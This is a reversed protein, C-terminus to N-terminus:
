PAGPSYYKAWLSPKGPLMVGPVSLDHKRALEIMRRPYEPWKGELRALGDREAPDLIPFLSESLCKEVAPRFEGPRCPGLPEPLAVGNKQALHAVELAYEPWKGLVSARRIEPITKVRRFEKVVEAPLSAFETIPTKGVPEPLGPHRDALRQLCAGYLLWYGSRVAAEQRTKLEFMEERTLRCSVPLDAKAEFKAPDARLVTRIYEDVQAALDPDSFPWLKAAPDHISEDWQRGAFVWESRRLAESQKWRAVLKVREDADAVLKLQDRSRAPLTERWVRERVRRVVELREDPKSVSLVERRDADPLRDLWAAYGDLVAFLRERVPHPQECLQQDLHRLQQQRAAPYSRFLDILKGRTDSSSEAPPATTLPSLSLEAGFLDPSDLDHVFGLDDVGLYIPLHEIVRLDALTPEDPDTRVVGGSPSLKARALYGGGLAIGAAVACLVVRLSFGIVSPTGLSSGTPSVSSPSPAATLRSLTRHTFNPSPEPRPLHDLLDFTRKFEEAKARAQEDRAMRAEIAEADPSDLEGDLYAILDTDDDPEDPHDPMAAGPPTV